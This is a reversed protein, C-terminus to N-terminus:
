LSASRRRELYATPSLDVVLGLARNSVARELEERVTQATHLDIDEEIRLVQVGQVGQDEIDSRDPARVGLFDPLRTELPRSRGSQPSGRNRLRQTEVTDM